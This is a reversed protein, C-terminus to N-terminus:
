SRPPPPAQRVTEIMRHIAETVLAPQDFQIFHSSRDAFVQRSDTSLTTLDQQLDLWMRRFKDPNVQEPM